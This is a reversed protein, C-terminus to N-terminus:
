SHHTRPHYPLQQSRTIIEEPTLGDRTWFRVRHYPVGTLKSFESATYQKGKYKLIINRRTNNLQKTHTIIRCNEPCYDGNPDIRDITCQGRPADKDYGAEVAWNYFAMFDDLWEQCVKIGRGGYYSYMPGNKQDCRRKMGRYVHYLRTNSMHHKSYANISCRMCMKVKGKTIRTTPATFIKGCINCRVNWMTKHNGNPTIRDEARDIVTAHELEMGSLDYRAKKTRGSACGCSTSRGGILHSCRVDKIKGCVCQCRAKYIKYGGPSREPICMALVTWDGFVRGTLDQM